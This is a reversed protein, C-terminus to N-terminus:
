ILWRSVVPIKRLVLWVAFSGAFVLAAVAPITLLRPSLAGSLGFHRLFYVFFMHVLYICFSANSVASCVRAARDKLSLRSLTMFIGCAMVAVGISMGELYQTRLTGARASAAFTGGFVMCLGAAWLAPGLARKEPPYARLYHGLLCYGMSGWTMNLAWQAPIGGLLRFPWLPRVTPYVVATLFWIALAYRLQKEDANKTFVRLLPVCLYILITIHLYYLHSEHRFLVLSKLADVIAASSFDGGAWLHYAGYCAAWFFLAALIRPLNRTLIRRPPYEREPRLLLAGTCMFFLPVSARSVSGWFLAALWGASAVPGVFGGASIHILLVGVIAFTKVLDVARDRASSTAM